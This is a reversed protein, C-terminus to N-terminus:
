DNDDDNLLSDLLRGSSNRLQDCITNQLNKVLNHHLYIELRRFKGYMVHYGNLYPSIQRRKIM